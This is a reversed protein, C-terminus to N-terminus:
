ALPEVYVSIRGGCSLGVRWATEDAVGFSLTKAKGSEIVDAAESVVAGEVCGGSVSGLFNGEGDIVLHSGVPRPASGWTEIVTAVAVGRGERKWAEATALIDSDTSLM